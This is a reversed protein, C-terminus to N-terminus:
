RCYKQGHYPLIGAYRFGVFVPFNMNIEFKGRGFNFFIYLISFNKFIVLKFKKKFFIDNCLTCVYM